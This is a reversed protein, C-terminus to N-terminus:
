RKLKRTEIYATDTRYDFHHAFSALIDKFGVILPVEYTPALFARIELPKTRHGAADTLRGTLRGIRVPLTCEPRPVIGRVQHEALETCVAEKWVTLPLLSMYAGTDILASYRDSWGHPTQFQIRTLLRIVEVGQKGLEADHLVRFFLNVRM